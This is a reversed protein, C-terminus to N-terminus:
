SKWVRVRVRLFVRGLGAPKGMGTCYVVLRPLDEVAVWHSSQTSAADILQFHREAVRMQLEATSHISEFQLVNKWAIPANRLVEYVEDIGGPINALLLRAYLVRKQIYESPSEREKGKMRFRMEQFEMNREQQWRDGLWYTKIVGMYYVVHYRMYTKWEDTLMTYWSRAASGEELRMWLYSGMQYPVAGGVAAYEQIDAFYQIASRHGGNWKPLDDPRFENKM